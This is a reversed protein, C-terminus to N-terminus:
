GRGLVSADLHNERRRQLDDCGTNRISVAALRESLCRRGRVRWYKRRDARVGGSGDLDGGSQQLGRTYFAKLADQGQIRPQGVPDEIWADDSFLRVIEEADGQEFCRFYEHIVSQIVKPDLM